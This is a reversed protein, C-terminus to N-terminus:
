YKLLLISIISVHKHQIYCIPAPPPPSLPLPLWWPIKLLIPPKALLRRLVLIVSEGVAPPTWLPLPVGVPLSPPLMEWYIWSQYLWLCRRLLLSGPMRILAHSGCSIDASALGVLSGLCAYPASLLAIWVTTPWDRPNRVFRSTTM